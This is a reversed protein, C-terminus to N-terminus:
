YQNATTQKDTHLKNRNKQINIQIYRPESGDSNPFIDLKIVNCSWLLLNVPICNEKNTVQIKIVAKIHKTTTSTELHFEKQIQNM